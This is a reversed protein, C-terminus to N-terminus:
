AFSEPLIMTIRTVDPFDCTTVDPWERRSFGRKEPRADKAIM